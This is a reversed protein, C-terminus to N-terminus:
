SPSEVSPPPALREGYDAPTWATVVGCKPCPASHDAGDLLESLLLDNFDAGCHQRSAADVIAAVDRRGAIQLAGILADTNADSGLATRASVAPAAYSTQVRVLKALVREVDQDRPGRCTRTIARVEAVIAPDREITKEDSM